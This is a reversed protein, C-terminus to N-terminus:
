TTSFYAYELLPVLSVYIVIILISLILQGFSSSFHLHGPLIFSTFAYYYTYFFTSIYAVAEYIRDSLGQAARDVDIVFGTYKTM